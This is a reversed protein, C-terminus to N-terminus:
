VAAEQAYRVGALQMLRYALKGAPTLRYEAHPRAARFKRVKRVLGKSVLMEVAAKTKENFNASASVGNTDNIRRMMRAQSSSIAMSFATGHSEAKFREQWNRM